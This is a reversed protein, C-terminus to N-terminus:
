KVHLELMQSLLHRSWNGGGELGDSSRLEANALRTVTLSLAFTVMPPTRSNAYHLCWVVRGLNLQFM